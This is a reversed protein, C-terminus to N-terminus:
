KDVKVLVKVLTDRIETMTRSMETFNTKMERMDAKIYSFEQKLLINNNELANMDESQKREREEIARIRNDTMNIGSKIDSVKDKLRDVLVINDEILKKDRHYEEQFHAFSERDTKIKEKQKDLREVVKESEIVEKVDTKIKSGLWGKFLLLLGGAGASGGAGLTTWLDVGTTTEDSM